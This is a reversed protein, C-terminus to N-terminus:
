GGWVALGGGCAKIGRAIFLLGRRLVQEGKGKNRKREGVGQWGMSRGGKGGGM